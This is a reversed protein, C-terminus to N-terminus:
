PAPPPTIFKTKFTLGILTRLCVVSIKHTDSTDGNVHCINRIELIGESIVSVDGFCGYQDKVQTGTLEVKWAVIYDVLSLAHNFPGSNSRRAGLFGSARRSRFARQITRGKHGWLFDM